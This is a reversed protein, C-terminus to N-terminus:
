KKKGFIFIAAIILSGLLVPGFNIVPAAIAGPSTNIAANFTRTAADTAAAGASAQTEGAAISKNYADQAAAAASASAGANNNEM